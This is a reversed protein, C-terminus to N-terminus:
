VHARGIKSEEDTLNRGLKQKLISEFQIRFLLMSTASNGTYLVHGLEHFFVSDMPMDGNLVVLFEHGKNQCYNTESNQDFFNAALNLASDISTGQSSLM